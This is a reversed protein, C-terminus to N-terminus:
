DDYQGFTHGNLLLTVPPFEFQVITKLDNSSQHLLHRHLVAKTAQGDILSGLKPWHHSNGGGLDIAKNRFRIL